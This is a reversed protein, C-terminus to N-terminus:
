VFFVHECTNYVIQIHQMHLTQICLTYACIDCGTQKHKNFVTNKCMVCICSYQTCNTYTTYVTNIHVYICISHPRYTKYVCHKYLDHIYPYQTCNTYKTYITNVCMTYIYIYAFITYQKYM